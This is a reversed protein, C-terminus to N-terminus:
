RSRKRLEESVMGKLINANEIMIRLNEKDDDSYIVRKQRVRNTVDSGNSIYNDLMSEAKKLEEKTLHSCSSLAPKKIFLGMPILDKQIANMTDISTNATNVNDKAQKEEKKTDACGVVLGMSLTLLLASLLKTTKM